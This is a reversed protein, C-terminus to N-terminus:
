DEAELKYAAIKGSNGFVYLMDDVAIPQVRVGDGDVKERAVFRGDNQAMVHVYGEIDGVVVYDLWATAGSLQRRALATQEWRVGQNNKAFATVTGKPDVVYVSSYSDGIGAYSSAEREWLKRGSQVDVASLMGQYSVVFLNGDSVIPDSAIDILREIESSGKPIGARVEWLPKGDALNVAIVRGNAFGAIVMDGVIIPAASARLILAPATVAYSWTEAGTKGDLGKLHGDITVVAVIRGDTQPAALVESNVATKWLVEGSEANLALVLGDQTGVAVLGGGAGVGATINADIDADWLSDGDLRNFAEIEGDYGAVFIRDGVVAPRLRYFLDGQGDGVSDSWIKDFDQTAEFEVLKAPEVEEDDESEFMSCGALMGLLAALVVGTGVGRWKSRSILEESQVIVSM